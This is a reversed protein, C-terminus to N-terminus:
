KIKDLLKKLYAIYVLSIESADKIKKEYVEEMFTVIQNAAVDPSDALAFGLNLGGYYKIWGPFLVYSAAVASYSSDIKSTMITIELNCRNWDTLLKYRSSAAIIDKVKFVVLKGVSDEGSHSVAVTIKEQGLFFGPLGILILFLCVSKKIQTVM